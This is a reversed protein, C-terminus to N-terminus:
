NGANMEPDESVSFLERLNSAEIFTKAIFKSRKSVFETTWNELSVPLESQIGQIVEKIRPLEAEGIQTLSRTLVYRSQSYMPAKGAPKLMTNERHDSSFVLTLAGISNFVSQEEHSADEFYTQGYVHDMDIGAVGKQVTKLYVSLENSYDGCRAQIDLHKSAVALVFRLKRHHSTKAYSLNTIFTEIADLANDIVFLNSAQSKKLIEVKTANAPLASLSKCWAPIMSEFSGTRERAFTYAAFRQNVLECVYDFQELHKAAFLVSLHQSGNFYRVAEFIPAADTLPNVGNASKRYFEGMERVKSQFGMIKEQNALESKWHKLLPETGNLKTGSTAIAWSKIFSETSGMSKRTVKDLEDTLAKWQITLADFNDQPIQSFLYNKLLDAAALPLGRRNMKEFYDLALPIDDIALRTLYLKDLLLKTYEVLDDIDSLNDTIWEEIVEYVERLNRQPQTLQGLTRIEASGNEYLYQLVSTGEQFPSKLRVKGDADDVLCTELIAFPTSHLRNTPDMSTRFRNLLATMLLFITTLRQQGDVIENEGDENSVFIVQGLLYYKGKDSKSAQFFDDLDSLLKQVHDEPKWAYDRQWRPVVTPSNEKFLRSLAFDESQPPKRNRSSM